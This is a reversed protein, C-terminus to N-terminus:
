VAQSKGGEQYENCGRFNPHVSSLAVTTVCHHLVRRMIMLNLTQIQGPAQGKEEEEIKEKELEGDYLIISRRFDPGEYLLVGHIIHLECLFGLQAARPSLSAIM